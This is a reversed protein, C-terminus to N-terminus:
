KEVQLEKREIDGYPTKEHFIEATFSYIKTSLETWADAMLGAKMCTHSLFEEVDWGWEVPVQPLLLGKFMGSEAILGDRGIKIIKLYERPDKVKIIEPPTLLSVDVLIKDLEDVRVPHFRPDRSCASIAADILADILPLIPEPYGICGRLDGSPYKNITVFVGSKRKFKEPYDKIKEKKEGKVHADITKRATKVAFIGDNMSYMYKMNDRCCHRASKKQKSLM